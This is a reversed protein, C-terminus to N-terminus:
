WIGHGRTFFLCILAGAVVRNPQYVVGMGEVFFAPRAFLIDVSPEFWIGMYKSFRWAVHAGLGGKGIWVKSRKPQVIGDSEAWIGMAALELSWGLSWRRLALSQGLGLAAMGGQSSWEVLDGSFEVEKTVLPLYRVSVKAMWQKYFLGGIVAVAPRVSALTGTDLAVGAGGMFRIPFVSPVLGNSSVTISAKTNAEKSATTAVSDTTDKERIEGDAKSAINRAPLSTTQSNKLSSRKALPEIVEAPQESIGNLQVMGAQLSADKSHLVTVPDVALATLLAAVELAAHCTNVTVSRSYQQSEETVTLQVRWQAGFEIVEGHVLRKQAPKTMKGLIREVYSIVDAENGCEPPVQWTCASLEKEQCRGRVSILSAVM